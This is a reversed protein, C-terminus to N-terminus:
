TTPKNIKKVFLVENLVTSFKTAITREKGFLFFVREEELLPILRPHQNTDYNEYLNTLYILYKVVDMWLDHWCGGSLGRM